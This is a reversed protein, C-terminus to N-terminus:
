GAGRRVPTFFRAAETLAETVAPESFIHGQGPLVRFAVDCRLGRLFDVLSRADALPVEEDQDGHFVLTPPMREIRAPLFPELGGGFLVVRNVRSDFAAVGVALFAGLSHGLIGVESGDVDPRQVVQTLADRLVGAWADYHEAEEALDAMFTGTADFYHVVFAVLGQKALARAYRSATDSVIRHVGSSGHVVIVAPHRGGSTPQYVDMRIRHGDSHFFSTGVQVAAPAVASAHLAPACGAAWCLGAGALIPRAVDWVQNARRPGAPDRPRKM